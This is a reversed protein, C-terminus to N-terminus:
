VLEVDIKDLTSKALYLAGEVDDRDLLDQVKSMVIVLYGATDQPRVLHKDLLFRCEDIRAEVGRRFKVRRAHRGDHERKAALYTQSPREGSLPAISKLRLRSDGIRADIDAAAYQLAQLWSILNDPQRLEASESPSAIGRIDRIVQECWLTWLPRRVFTEIM